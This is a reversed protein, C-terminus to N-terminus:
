SVFYQDYDVFSFLKQTDTIVSTLFQFSVDVRAQPKSQSFEIGQWIDQLSVVLAYVEELPSFEEVLLFMLLRIGYEKCDRCLCLKDCCVCSFGPFCGCDCWAATMVATLMGLEVMVRSSIKSAAPNPYEPLKGGLVAIPDSRLFAFSFFFSPKGIYKFLWLTEVRNDTLWMKVGFKPEVAKDISQTVLSLVLEKLCCKTRQLSKVGPMEKLEVVFDRSGFGLSAGTDEKFTLLKIKDCKMYKQFDELEYIVEGQCERLIDKLFWGGSKVLSGEDSGNKVLGKINLRKLIGLVGGNLGKKGLDEKEKLTYLKNRILYKPEVQSPNEKLVRTVFDESNSGGEESPNLIQSGNELHM